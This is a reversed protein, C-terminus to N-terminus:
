ELVFYITDPDTMETGYEVVKIKYNGLSNALKTNIDEIDEKTEQLSTNTNELKGAINNNM